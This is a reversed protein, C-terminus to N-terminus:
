WYKPNSIIKKYGGFSYVVTYTDTYNFFFMLLFIRILDLFEFEM